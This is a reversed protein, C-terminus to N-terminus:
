RGWSGDSNSCIVVGGSSYCYQNANAFTAVVMFSLALIVKKM